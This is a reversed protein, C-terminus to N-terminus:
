NARGCENFLNLWGIRKKGNWIMVEAGLELVEDTVCHVLLAEEDAVPAVALVVVVDSTGALWPSWFAGDAM